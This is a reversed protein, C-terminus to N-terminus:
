LRGVRAQVTIVYALASSFGILTAVAEDHRAKTRSPIPVIHPLIPLSDVGKQPFVPLGLEANVKGVRIERSVVSPRHTEINLDLPLEAEAETQLARSEVM